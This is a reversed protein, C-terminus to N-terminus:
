QKSSNVYDSLKANMITYVIFGYTENGLRLIINGDDDDKAKGVGKSLNLLLNTRRHLDNKRVTVYETEKPKRKVKKAVM